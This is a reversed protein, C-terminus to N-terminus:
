QLFINCFPHSALLDDGKYNQEVVDIVTLNICHAMRQQHEVEIIKELKVIVM